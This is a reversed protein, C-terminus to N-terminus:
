FTIPLGIVRVIYYTPKNKLLKLFCKNTFNSLYCAVIKNIFSSYHSCDNRYYFFPQRKSLLFVGNNVTTISRTFITFYNKNLLVVTAVVTM